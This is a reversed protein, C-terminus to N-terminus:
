SLVSLGPRIFKETIPRIRKLLTTWYRSRREIGPSFEVTQLRETEEGRTTDRLHLREDLEDPLWGMDAFKGHWNPPSIRLRISLHGDAFHYRFTDTGLSGYINLALPQVRPLSGDNFRILAAYQAPVHLRPNENGHRYWVRESAIGDSLSTSTRGLMVKDPPILMERTDLDIRIPTVSSIHSPAHKLIGRCVFAACHRTRTHCLDLHRLSLPFDYLRPVAVGVCVPAPFSGELVSPNSRYICRNIHQNLSTDASDSLGTTNM